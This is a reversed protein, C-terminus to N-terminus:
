AASKQKCIVHIPDIVQPYDSRGGTWLCFLKGTKFVFLVKYVGHPRRIQIHKGDRDYGGDHTHASVILNDGKQYM